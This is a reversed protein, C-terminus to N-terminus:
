KKSMLRAESKQKEKADVSETACETGNLRNRHSLWGITERGYPPKSPKVEPLVVEKRPMGKASGGYTSM